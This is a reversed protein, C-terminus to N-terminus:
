LNQNLAFYSGAGLLGKILIIIYQSYKQIIEKKPLISSLVESLKPISLVMVIVGVIAPMKIMELIRETFSKNQESQQQNLLQRQEEMYNNSNSNNVMEQTLVQEDFSPEEQINMQEEPMEPLNVPANQSNQVNQPTNEVANNPANQSGEIEQLIENVLENENSESQQSMNPLNAIPTSKSM